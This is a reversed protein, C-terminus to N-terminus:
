PYRRKGNRNSRNTRQRDLEDIYIVELYDGEEEEEEEEDRLSSGFVYGSIYSFWVIFAVLSFDIWCLSPELDRHGDSDGVGVSPVAAVAVLPVLLILGDRIGWTGACLASVLVLFRYSVLM